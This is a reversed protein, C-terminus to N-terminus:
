GGAAQKLAEIDEPPLRSNAVIQRLAADREPAEGGRERERELYRVLCGPHAYAAGKQAGMPGEFVREFAVRLEGKQIPEDCGKCRARGNPAREAHPMEPKAHAEAAAELAAREPVPGDYSALTGRLENAMKTAACPLHWYRYSLTGPEGYANQFEECFRLEGKGIAQKCGRCSARGTPAAEIKHAM